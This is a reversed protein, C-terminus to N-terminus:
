AIQNWISDLLSQTEVLNRTSTFISFNTTLEEQTKKTFRLIYQEIKEDPCIFFITPSIQTKIWEDQTFFDIYRLVRSRMFFRPADKQFLEYIYYTKQEGTEKVRVFHPKLKALLSDVSYDNRTYFESNSNPQTTAQIYCEVIFRCEEVFKGSRFKERRLKTLNTKEQTKLWRIGNIALYYVSPKGIERVTKGIFQKDVLDKLWMNINRRDKNHLITQTQISNLFRFRYLYLLIEQQKLTIHPLTM